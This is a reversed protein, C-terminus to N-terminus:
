DWMKENIKMEDMKEKGEEVKEDYREKVVV